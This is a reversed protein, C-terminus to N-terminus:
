LAELKVNIGGFCKQRSPDNLKEIFGDLSGIPSVVQLPLRDAPFDESFTNKSKMDYTIKRYM